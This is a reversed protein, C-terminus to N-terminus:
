GGEAKETDGTAEQSAQGPRKRQTLLAQLAPYVLDVIEQQSFNDALLYYVGKHSLSPVPVMESETPGARTDPAVAVPPTATAPISRSGAGTPEDINQRGGEKQAAVPALGYWGLVEEEPWGLKRGIELAREIRPHRADELYSALTQRSLNLTKKAFHAPKAGSAVLAAQLRAV